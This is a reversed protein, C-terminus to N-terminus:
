SYDKNYCVKGEMAEMINAETCIERQNTNRIFSILAMNIAEVGIM